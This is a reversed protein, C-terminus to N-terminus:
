ERASFVGCTKAMEDVFFKVRPTMKMARYASRPTNYLVSVLFRAQQNQNDLELAKTLDDLGTGVQKTIGIKILAFLTHADPDYPTLFVAQSFCELARDRLEDVMLRSAGQFQYATALNASGAEVGPTNIFQTLEQDAERFKQGQFRYLGALFHVVPLSFRPRVLFGAVWGDSGDVSLRYWLGHERRYRMDLVEFVGMLDMTKKIGYDTGPGNRLNVRTRLAEVQRPPVEVEKSKIFGSSGESLQVKFWAGNMDIAKVIMGRPVRGQAPATECPRARLTSERTTILPRTFLEARTTRVLAFNFRYRPIEAKLEAFWGPSYSLRLVIGRFLEPTLTLYTRVFIQNGHEHVVGWLIMTAKQRKAIEMAAVHYNRKLMEMPSPGDPLHAYIVHAGVQDRIATLLEKQILHSLSKGLGTDAPDLFEAVLGRNQLPPWWESLMNGGPLFKYPGSGAAEVSSGTALLLVFALLIRKYDM